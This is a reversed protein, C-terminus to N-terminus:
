QFRPMISILLTTLWYAPQSTFSLRIETIVGNIKDEGFYNGPIATALTSHKKTKKVYDRRIVFSNFSRDHVKGGMRVWKAEPFSLRFSLCKHTHTPPYISLSICLTQNAFLYRQPM